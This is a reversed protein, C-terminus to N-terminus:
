RISVLSGRQGVLQICGDKAFEAPRRAPCLGKQCLGSASWNSLAKGKSKKKRLWEERGEGRGEGRKGKGQRRERTGEEEKARQRFDDEKNEKRQGKINKQLCGTTCCSPKLSWHKVIATSPLICTMLIANGIRRSHLIAAAISSFYTHTTYIYIYIYM